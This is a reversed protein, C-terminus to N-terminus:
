HEICVQSGSDIILIYHHNPNNIFCSEELRLLTGILETSTECDYWEILDSNFPCEKYETDIYLFHISEYKTQLIPTESEISNKNAQPSNLLIENSKFPLCVLENRYKIYEIYNLMFNHLFLKTVTRNNDLLEILQGRNHFGNPFLIKHYYNLRDIHSQYENKDNVRLRHFLDLATEHKIM